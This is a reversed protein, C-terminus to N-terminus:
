GLEHKNELTNKLRAKHRLNAIFVNFIFFPTSFHRKLKKIMNLNVIFRFQRIKFYHFFLEDRNITIPVHWDLIKGLRDSQM